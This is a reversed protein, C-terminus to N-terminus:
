LVCIVAYLVAFIICKNNVAIHLINMGAHITQSAMYVMVHHRAGNSTHMHMLLHSMKIHEIYDVKNEENCITM